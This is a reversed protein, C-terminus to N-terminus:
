LRFRRGEIACHYQIELGGACARRPAITLSVVLPAPSARWTWTTTLGKAGPELGIEHDGGIASGVV